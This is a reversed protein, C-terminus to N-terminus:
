LTDIFSLLDTYINKAFYTPGRTMDDVKYCFDEQTSKLTAVDYKKMRHLKTMKQNMKASVDAAALSISFNPDPTYAM